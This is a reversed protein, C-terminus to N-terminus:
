QVSKICDISDHDATNVLSSVQYAIMESPAYSKMLAKLQDKDSISPNLWTKTDEISLIVPMRNHIPTVISNALTTLIVCTYLKSGDSRTFASWLGAMPFLSNNKLTIRMPIKKAGEQRWEYFGDALLVCRRNMFSSAFAPKEAVTESKANILHNGIKESDAFSPVFGWKILGARNKKGDNVISLVNQGPAVNYRPVVIADDFDGIQFSEQLYRHLDEYSVIYTYRGCM